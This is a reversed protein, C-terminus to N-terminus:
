TLCLKLCVGFGPLIPPSKAASISNEQTWINSLIALATVLLKCIITKVKVFNLTLSVSTFLCLGSVNTSFKM